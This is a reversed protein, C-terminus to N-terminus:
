GLYLAKTKPNDWYLSERHEEILKVFKRPDFEFASCVGGISCDGFTTIAKEELAEENKENLIPIDFETAKQEAKEALQYAKKITAERPLGKIKGAVFICYAKNIAWALVSIGTATGWTGISTLFSLDM